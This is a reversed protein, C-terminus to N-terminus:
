AGRGPLRRRQSDVNGDTRWGTVPTVVASSRPANNTFRSVVVLPAQVGAITPTMLGILANTLSTVVAADVTNSVIQDEGFGMHYYRGRYSRGRSETLKTFVLSVNNPMPDNLKVGTLPLGTTYEISPSTQTTLDTMRISRLNLNDVVLADYVLDFWGVLFAGLEAMQSASWGGPRQYHLVNECKESHYVYLMEAQVVNTAPIFAM